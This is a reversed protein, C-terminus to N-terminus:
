KNKTKKKLNNSKVEGQENSHLNWLPLRLRVKTHTHECQSYCHGACLLDEIFIQKISLNIPACLYILCVFNQLQLIYHLLSAYICTIISCLCSSTVPIHLIVPCYAFSFIIRRLFLKLFCSFLIVQYKVSYLPSRWSLLTSYCIDSYYFFLTKMNILTTLCRTYQPCKVPFGTHHM